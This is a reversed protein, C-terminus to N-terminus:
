TKATKRHGRFVLLLTVIASILVIIIVILLLLNQDTFAFVTPTPQPEDGVTFNLTRNRSIEGYSFPGYGYLAVKTITFNIQQHGLPIDNLVLNYVVWYPPGSTSYVNKGDPTQYYNNWYLHTNVDPNINSTNTYWDHFSLPDGSWKYLVVEEKLWSAVYSVNLVGYGRGQPSRNAGATITFNLPESANQRYNNEITTDNATKITIVPDWEEITLGKTIDAANVPSLVLLSASSLALVVILAFTVIKCIVGM